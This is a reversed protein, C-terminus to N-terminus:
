AARSPSARVGEVGGPGFIDNLPSADQAKAYSPFSFRSTGAVVAGGATAQLLRRRSLSKATMQETNRTKEM